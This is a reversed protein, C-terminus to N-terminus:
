LIFGQSVSGVRVEPSCNNGGKGGLATVSYVSSVLIYIWKYLGVDWNSRRRTPSLIKRRHMRCMSLSVKGKFSLDNKGCLVYSLRAQIM